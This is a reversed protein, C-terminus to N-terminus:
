LFKPCLKKIEVFFFFDSTSKIPIEVVGCLVRSSASMQVIDLRRVRLSRAEKPRGHSKEDAILVM